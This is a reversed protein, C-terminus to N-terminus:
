PEITVPDDEAPADVDMVAGNAGQPEMGDAAGETPETGDAAKEETPETGNVAKEEPEEVTM